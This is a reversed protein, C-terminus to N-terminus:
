LTMVLKSLALCGDFHVAPEIGPFEGTAPPEARVLVGVCGANRACELDVDADGVFWVDPGPAVGCGDLAMGVPEPAPKDHSADFAGVLRHFYRDWGIYAAEKRLYDGKKNSVVALPFGADALSELMKEAGPLPTLTELHRDTYRAYFVDGAEQWRDGFMAPFTDRMSGRVRRRTEDMTWLPMGFHAFVHNQADLIAPWSDILTNDWDFVITRPRSLAVSHPAADNM